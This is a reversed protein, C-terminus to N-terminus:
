GDNSKAEIDAGKQLLLNTFELQGYMAAYVLTPVADEPSIPILDQPQFLQHELAVKLGGFNKDLAMQDIDEAPPLERTNWGDPTYEPHDELFNQVSKRIAWNVHMSDSVPKRTNPCTRRGSSEFHKLIAQQEYTHGSDISVPVRFMMHTIPCILTNPEDVVHNRRRKSEPGTKGSPRKSSRDPM